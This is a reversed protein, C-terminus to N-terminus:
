NDDNKCDDGLVNKKLLLGEDLENVIESGRPNSAVVFVKISFSKIM